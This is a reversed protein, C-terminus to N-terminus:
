TQRRVDTLIRQIGKLYPREQDSSSALGKDDAEVVGPVM